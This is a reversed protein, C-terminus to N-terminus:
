RALKNEGEDGVQENGEDKPEGGSGEKPGGTTVHSPLGSFCLNGLTSGNDGDSDEVYAQLDKVQSDQFTLLPKAQTNLQTKSSIPSPISLALTDDNTELTNHPPAAARGM